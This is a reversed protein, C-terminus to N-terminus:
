EALGAQKCDSLAFGRSCVSTLCSHACRRNTEDTGGQVTRGKAVPGVLKNTVVLTWRHHGGGFFSEPLFFTSLEERKKQSSWRMACDFM